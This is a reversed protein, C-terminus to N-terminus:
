LIVLELGKAVADQRSDVEMKRYLSKLHTKITNNSIHLTAAIQSITVGTALRRLIEMERKTLDLNGSNESNTARAIQKRIDRALLELYITPHNTALDLLYNQLTPSQMLFITRFGNTMAIDTAEKLFKLALNPKSKYMEASILAKELQYRPNYVPLAEVVKQMQQLNHKDVYLTHLLRTTSTIPMRYLLDQIRVKDDLIVRILLEHEDVIRVIESKFSIGEIDHRAAKIIELSETIRGQNAFILALKARLATIWPWQQYQLAIPLFEVIMDGAKEFEGSERYIDALCYVAEFPFFMGSVNIEQANVLAFLSEQLADRLRGDSLANLARMSPLTVAKIIAPNDSAVAEALKLFELSTAEQEQLFAASAATRYSSLLHTAFESHVSHSMSASKRALDVVRSYDGIFFSIRLELLNLEASETELDGQAILLERFQKQFVLAGELNGTVLEFAGQRYISNTAKILSTRELKKLHILFTALDASLILELIYRGTLQLAEEERGALRLMEIASAIESRALLFDRAKALFVRVSESEMELQAILFDKFMEKVRYSDPLESIRELYIGHTELERLTNISKPAFGLLDLELISISKFLSVKGLLELSESPLQLCVREILLDRRASSIKRSDNAKNQTTIDALAMQIGVPWGGLELVAESLRSDAPDVDNIRAVYDIEFQDFKLNEISLYNIIVMNELRNFSIGSINKCLILTSVNLPASDVCAKLFPTIAPALSDLDDIVFHVDHDFTAIEECIKTIVLTGMSEVDSNETLWLAFNPRIRRIAAVMHFISTKVSDGASASYWATINPYKAAWQSGLVTKGFGTPAVAILFRPSQGELSALLHNRPFFNHSIPPPTIRIQSVGPLLEMEM